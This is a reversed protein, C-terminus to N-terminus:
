LLLAGAALWVAAGRVRTNGAGSNGPDTPPQTQEPVPVLNDLGYDLDNPAASGRPPRSDGNDNYQAHLHQHQHRPPLGGPVPAGYVRTHQPRPKPGPVAVPDAQPDLFERYHKDDFYSKDNIVRIRTTGLVGVNQEPKHHKPRDLHEMLTLGVKATGRFSTPTGNKSAIRTNQVRDHSVDQVLVGPHYGYHQQLRQVSVEPAGPMRVPLLVASLAVPAVLLLFLALAM